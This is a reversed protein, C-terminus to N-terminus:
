GKDFGLRERAWRRPKKTERSAGGRRGDNRRDRARGNRRRGSGLRRDALHIRHGRRLSRPDDGVERRDIWYPSLSVPHVVLENQLLEQLQLEQRFVSLEHELPQDCVAPSSERRCLALAEQVESLTSGM